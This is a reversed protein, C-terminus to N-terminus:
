APVPGSWSLTRSCNPCDESPNPKVLSLRRPQPIGNEITWPLLSIETATAFLGAAELEHDETSDFSHPIPGGIDIAFSVINTPKLEGLTGDTTISGSIDWEGDPYSGIADTSKAETIFYEITGAAASDGGVALGIICSFLTHICNHQIMQKTLRYAALTSSLSTKDLVNGIEDAMLHHSDLTM